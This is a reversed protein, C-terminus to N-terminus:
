KQKHDERLQERRNAIIDIGKGFILVNVVMAVVLQVCVFLRALSGIAIVDGFGTSSLVSISFYACHIVNFWGDFTSLGVFSDPVAYMITYYQMSFTFGILGYLYFFHKFGIITSFINPPFASLAPTSSLQTM